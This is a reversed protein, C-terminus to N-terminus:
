LEKIGKRSPTKRAFRVLRQRARFLKVKVTNENWSFMQALDQISYGEVEKLVLLLREDPSLKGLLLSVTQAMEAQREPSVRSSAANAIERAAEETMESIYQLRSTRQKRLYDYCENVTIRYIWTLLACRFDFRRLGFYVKTFVQQAIDEVDTRSRVLAYAISFVKGQYRQVILRFADSDGSQCSRILTTEWDAQAAPSIGVVVGSLPLTAEM